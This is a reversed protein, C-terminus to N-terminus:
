DPNLATFRVRLWDKPHRTPIDVPELSQEPLLEWQYGRLLQAAVIKMELKAFAIGICLGLNGPPLPLHQM